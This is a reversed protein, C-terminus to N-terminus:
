PFRYDYIWDLKDMDKFHIQRKRITPKCGMFTLVASGIQGILTIYIKLIVGGERSHPLGPSFNVDLSIKEKKLM